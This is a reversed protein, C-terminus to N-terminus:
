EPQHELVPVSDGVASPDVCGITPPSTMARYRAAQKQPRPSGRHDNWSGHRLPGTGGTIAFRIPPELVNDDSNFLLLGRATVQGKQLPADDLTNFKYTAEYQVLQSGDQFFDDNADAVRLVTLVGTHTGAQRQAVNM